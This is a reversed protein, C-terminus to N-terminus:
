HVPKRNTKDFKKMFREGPTAGEMGMDETEEVEGEEEVEDDEEEPEEYGEITMGEFASMVIQGDQVKATGVFDFTEGEKKGEPLQFGDPIPFTPM